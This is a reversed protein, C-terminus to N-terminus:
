LGSNLVRQRQACDSWRRQQELRDAVLCHPSSIIQRAVELDGGHYNLIPTFLLGDRLMLDYAVEEASRGEQRAIERVRKSQDPEYDDASTFAYARDIFEGLIKFTDPIHDADALIRARVEPKRFEALRQDLPM